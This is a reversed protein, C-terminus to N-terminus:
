WECIGTVISVGEKFIASPSEKAVEEINVGGHPSAVICPGQVCNWTVVSESLVIALSCSNGGHSVGAKFARDMVIAFYYESLIKM